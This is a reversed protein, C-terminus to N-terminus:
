VIEDLDIKINDVWRSNLRRLTIMGESIGELICEEDRSHKNCAMDMEDKIQDYYKTLLV